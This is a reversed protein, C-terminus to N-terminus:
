LARGVRHHPPYAVLTPEDCWHQRAIGSRHAQALMGRLSVLVPNSPCTSFFACHPLQTPSFLAIRDFAPEDM